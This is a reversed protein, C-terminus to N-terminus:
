QPNVIARRIFIIRRGDPAVDPESADFGRTLRRLRGGDSDVAYLSRFGYRRAARDSDFVITRGDPSFVPHADNGRARVLNRRHRGDRDSVCIDLTGDKQECAFALTQGDRSFAAQTAGRRGATLQRTDGTKLDVVFLQHAEAPEVEQEFVLTAGDPSFVPNGLIPASEHREDKESAKIRIKRVHRGGADAVFIVIGRRAGPGLARVFAIRRSDPAWDPQSAKRLITQVTGGRASVRIVVPACRFCRQAGFLISAGSSSFSPRSLFVFRGLRLTRAPGGGVAVVGLEARSSLVLPPRAGAHTAPLVVELLVVAGALVRHRVM